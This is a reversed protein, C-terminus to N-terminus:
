VWVPRNEAPALAPLGDPAFGPPPSTIGESNEHLETPVVCKPDVPAPAEPPTILAVVADPADVDPADPKADLIENERKFEDLQQAEYTEKYRRIYADSFNGEGRGVMSHMDMYSVNEMIYEIKELFETGKGQEQMKAYMEDFSVDYQGKEEDLSVPYDPIRWFYDMAQDISLTTNEAVRGDPLITDVSFRENFEQSRFRSFDGPNYLEQAELTDAPTLLDERMANFGEPNIVDGAKMVLEFDHLNYYGKNLDHMFAARAEPSDLDTIQNDPNEQNHRDVAQKIMIAEAIVGAQAETIIGSFGNAEIVEMAFENDKFLDVSVRDHDRLSVYIDQGAYLGKEGGFNFARYQTMEEWQFRGVPDHKEDWNVKWPENVSPANIRNEDPLLGFTKYGAYDRASAINILDSFANRNGDIAVLQVFLADMRNYTADNAAGDKPPLKDLFQRRADSNMGKIDSILADLDSFGELANLDFDNRFIDKLERVREEEFQLLEEIDPGYKGDQSEPNFSEFHFGRQTLIKAKANALEVLTNYTNISNAHYLDFDPRKADLNFPEGTGPDYDRIIGTKTEYYQHFSGDSQLLFHYASGDENDFRQSALGTQIKDGDIVQYLTGDELLLEAKEMDSADHFGTFFLNYNEALTQRMFSDMGEQMHATTLADWDTPNDLNHIVEVSLKSGEVTAFSSAAQEMVTRATAVEPTENDHAIAQRVTKDSNQDLAGILEAQYDPDQGNYIQMLQLMVIARDKLPSQEEANIQSQLYEGLKAQTTPGLSGARDNAIDTLGSAVMDKQVQEIIEAFADIFGTEEVNFVHRPSIKYTSTIEGSFAGIETANSIFDKLQFLGINAPTDYGEPFEFGKGFEQVLQVGYNMQAGVEFFAQRQRGFDIMFDLLAIDDPKDAASEILDSRYAILSQLLFEDNDDWQGDKTANFFEVSTTTLESLKPAFREIGAEYIGNATSIAALLEEHMLNGQARMSADIDEYDGRHTNIFERNKLLFDQLNTTFVEPIQEPYLTSRQEPPLNIQANSSLILSQASELFSEPISDMYAPNLGTLFEGMLQQQLSARGTAPSAEFFNRTNEKLFNFAALKRGEPADEALNLSLSAYNNPITALLQHVLPGHRATLDDLSQADGFIFDTLDDAHLSIGHQFNRLQFNYGQALDPNIEGVLEDPTVSGDGGIETAQIYELHELYADLAPNRDSFYSQDGIHQLIIKATHIDEASSQEDLGDFFNTLTSRIARVDAFVLDDANEEVLDDNRKDALGFFGVRHDGDNIGPLDAIAQRIELPWSQIADRNTSLDDIVDDSGPLLSALIDSGNLVKIDDLIEPAGAGDKEAEVSQVIGLYDDLLTNRDPQKAFYTAIAQAVALDAAPSDPGLRNLFADLANYIEEADSRHILDNPNSESLDDSRSDFGLRPDKFDIGPLDAIANRLEYPLERIHVLNAFLGEGSEMDHPFFEALVQERMEALRASFQPASPTNRAAYEIAMVNRRQIESFDMELLDKIELRVFHSQVKLIDEESGAIISELKARTEDNLEGSQEIDFLGQIVKIEESFDAVETDDFNLFTTASEVIMPILNPNPANLAGLTDDNELAEQLKQKLEDDFLAGKDELGFFARLSVLQQGLAISDLLETPTIDVM